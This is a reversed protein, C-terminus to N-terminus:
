SLLFKPLAATGSNNKKSLESQPDQMRTMMQRKVTEAPILSLQSIRFISIIQQFHDFIFM